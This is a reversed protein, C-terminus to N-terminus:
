PTGVNTITATVEIQQQEFPIHGTVMYLGVEKRSLVGRWPLLCKAAAIVALKEQDGM